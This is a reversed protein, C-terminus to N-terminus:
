MDGSQPPGRGGLTQLSKLNNGCKGSQSLPKSLRGAARGYSFGLLVLGFGLLAVVGPEPIGPISVSGALVPEKARSVVPAVRQGIADSTGRVTADVAFAQASALAFFSVVALFVLRFHGHV